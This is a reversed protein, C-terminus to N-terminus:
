SGTRLGMARARAAAESWVDRWLHRASEADDRAVALLQGAVLARGGSMRRGRRRLWAEAMVGDQMQGLVDQLDALAAALREAPRGLAPAAAEALYRCDKARIRVRHLDPDGPDPPLGAIIRALRRWRRHVLGPLVDRAHAAGNVVDPAGALAVLERLLVACREEHLAELLAGRAAAREQALAALLADAAPRDGPALDVAAGRHLREALVDADRVTGLHRGLWGLEDRLGEVRDGEALVPLFAGLLARLQRTAARAQHVAETDLDLRVGPEHGLLRRAGAALAAQVVASLSAGADVAPSRPEPGAEADVGLAQVLKPLAAERRAGAERLLRSVAKRLRPKAEPRLELELERFSAVAEDDRRVEVVDDALAALTQGGEGALHHLRRTTNIAAVAAVPEGMLLAAVADLAAPPPSAGAGPFTVEHRSLVHHGDGVPVKLTWGDDRRRLTVGWQALALSPTDYYVAVLQQAPGVSATVGPVASLDPMAFAADAQLKLERELVVTALRPRM